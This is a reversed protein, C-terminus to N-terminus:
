KLMTDATICSYVRKDIESIVGRIVGNHCNHADRFKESSGQRVSELASYHGRSLM